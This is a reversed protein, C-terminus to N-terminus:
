MKLSSSSTKYTPQDKLLRIIKSLERDGNSGNWPKIRLMNNASLTMHDPNDDILLTNSKNMPGFHSFVKSMDKLYFMGSKNVTKNRSWIFKLKKRESDTFINKVIQNCYEKTAATWISVSKAHIFLELLFRDLGPRKYVYYHENDINIEFAPKKTKKRQACILTNDLDLVFHLKKKNM